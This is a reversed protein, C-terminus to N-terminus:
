WKLAIAIRGDPHRQPTTATRTMPTGCKQASSLLKIVSLSRIMEGQEPRQMDDIQQGFQYIMHDATPRSSGDDLRETEFLM